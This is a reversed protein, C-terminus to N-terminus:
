DSPPLRYKTLEFFLRCLENIRKEEIEVEDFSMPKSNVEYIYYQGSISQGADISFEGFYGFRQSLAKGAQNVITQIFQDHEKTQVLEYPLLRGGNPIHTTLDQTLAQRIGVGTVLYADQEAHALIRFDYRKGDYTASRIEEQILYHKEILLMGWKAWFDRFSSFIENSKIGALEIAKENTRKIRFIGKGKASHAPKLYACGQENLFSHCNMQDSVLETRPLFRKLIPHKQFLCYLEYKDLFCPNFFPINKQKLSKFLRSCRDVQELHRFPIRNYILDPYPIKIKKWSNDEPLFAYGYIYHSHADEPAFIFSFGGHSTLKSQLNIFLSRNGTMMGDIKRATIIGILPGAHDNQLNVDFSVSKLNEHMQFAIKQNEGGFTVTTDPSTHYWEKSRTDYYIKM